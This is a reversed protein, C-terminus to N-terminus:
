EGNADRALFLIRVGQPDLSRGTAVFGTGTAHIAYLLDEDTIDYSREWLLTGSPSFRAVLAHSRNRATRVGKATGAVLLDGNPAQDIAFAHREMLTDGHTRTWLTDGNPAIKILHLSGYRRGQSDQPGHSRTHGAMIFRGDSSALLGRGEENAIGGWSTNHLLTGDLGFYLFLADSTGGFNLQRGTVMIGEEGIAVAHGEAAPPFPHTGAWSLTGDTTFRAMLVESGQPNAAVGCAVAGGDPMATIGLFRRGEAGALVQQWRVAGDQALSVVLAEHRGGPRLVSGCAFGGGDAAPTMAHLFVSGPLSPEMSGSPSGDATRYLFLPRYGADAGHYARAGVIWGNGHRLVGIGEHALPGGLLRTFGPQAQGQVCLVLGGVLM